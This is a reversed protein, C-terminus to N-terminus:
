IALSRRNRIASQPDCIAAGALLSSQLVVISAISHNKRLTHVRRYRTPQLCACGYHLQRGIVDFQVRELYHRPEARDPRSRPRHDASAFSHLCARTKVQGARQCARSSPALWPLMDPTMHSPRAGSTSGSFYRGALPLPSLPLSRDLARLTSHLKSEFTFRLPVPQLQKNINRAVHKYNLEKEGDLWTNTQKNTQKNTTPRCFEFRPCRSSASKQAAGYRVGSSSVVVPLGVKLECM